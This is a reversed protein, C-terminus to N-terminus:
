VSLYHMVCFPLQLVHNQPEHSTGQIESYLGYSKLTENHASFADKDQLYDFGKNAAVRSQCFGNMSTKRGIRGKNIVAATINVSIPFLSYLTVTFIRSALIVLFSSFAAYQEQRISLSVSLSNWVEFLGLLLKNQTNQSKISDSSQQKSTLLPNLSNIKTKQPSSPVGIPLTAIKSVPLM